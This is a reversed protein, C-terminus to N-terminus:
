FYRTSVIASFSVGGERYVSPDDPRAGLSEGLFVYRIHAKSLFACLAKGNFQPSYRSFPISRVDAVASINVSKLMDVFDEITRNSHGVTWVTM